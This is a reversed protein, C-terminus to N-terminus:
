DQNEFGEIGISEAFGAMLANISQSADLAPIPRWTPYEGKLDGPQQDKFYYYLPLKNVTLQLRGDSRQITAFPAAVKAGAPVILAPWVDLCGGACNTKNEDDADFTYLSIKNQDTLLRRSGVEISDVIAGKMMPPIAVPTKIGVNGAVATQGALWAALLTSMIKLNISM